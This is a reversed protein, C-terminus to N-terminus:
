LAFSFLMLQNTVEHTSWWISEKQRLTNVHCHHLKVKANRWFIKTCVVVHDFNDMNVCIQSFSKFCQIIGPWYNTQWKTFFCSTDACMCMGVSQFCLVCLNANKYYHLYHRWFSASQFRNEFTQTKLDGLFHQHTFLPMFIMTKWKKVTSLM